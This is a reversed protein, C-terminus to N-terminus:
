TNVEFFYTPSHNGLKAKPFTSQYEKWLFSKYKAPDEVTVLKSFPAIPIGDSPNYFYALSLRPECSNVLSRHLVSKYRSNSLVQVIDGVNVTLFGKEPKVSVWQGNRLIELGGIEDQCLIALCGYDKHAPSGFTLDAVPCPPYYNVRLASSSDSEFYKTAEHPDVDLAQFLIGVIRSALNNMLSFYENFDDGLRAVDEDGAWVEKLLEHNRERGPMIHLAESWAKIRVSQSAGTYGLPTNSTKLIRLKQQLPLQFIRLCYSSIRDLLSQPVGHHSIRFFGWSASATSIPHLLSSDPQSLDISPFTDDGYGSSPTHLPQQHLPWVFDEPKEDGSLFTTSSSLLEEEQANM